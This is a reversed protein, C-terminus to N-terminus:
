TTGMFEVYSEARPLMSTCLGDFIQPKVRIPASYVLSKLHGSLGFDPPNLDPSQAPWNVPGGRGIRQEGFTQNAHQRAIRLFYTPVREHMFWIHQPQHLPLHRLILPLDNMMFRRYVADALRNPLVASGLLQDGLIGSLSLFDINVDEHWLPTPITMWGPMTNHFNGTIYRTFRAEDTFLISAVFLTNVICKALFWQCFVTVRHDHTTLAQV